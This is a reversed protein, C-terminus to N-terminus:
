FWGKKKFLILLASSCAAMLGLAFLYGHRWGLEPMGQFNMGYIGAILSMPLIFSAFVTLIKMTRNMRQALATNYAELSNHALERLAEIQNMLGQAHSYAESLSLRCAESIVLIRRGSIRMLTDRLSAVCTKLTIIHRKFSLIERNLGESFSMQIRDDIKESREEMKRLTRTLDDILNDLILFLIFGPTQAFRFERQYTSAFRELAPLPSDALTLCYRDTLHLVIRSPEAEEEGERPPEWYPASVTLSKETEIVDPMTEPSRLERVLEEPIELKDAMSQFSEGSPSNLHVWAIRDPQSLDPHYSDLPHEEIARSKLDFSVAQPALAM